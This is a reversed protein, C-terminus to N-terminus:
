INQKIWALAEDLKEQPAIVHGGEFEIWRTKWGKKQLFKHDAHMEDYRFDTPSALFVATKGRPYDQKKYFRNIMGTNVIVADVTEPQTYALTHATMAGGSFGTAIIKDPDVPHGALIEIIMERIKPMIKYYSVGNKSEKSAALLMDHKVAMPQWQDILAYADASPSFALLLPYQGERDKLIDEPTFLLYRDNDVLYQRELNSLYQIQKVQSEAKLTTHAYYKQRIWIISAAALIIWIIGITLLTKREM